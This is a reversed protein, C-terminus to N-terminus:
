YLVTKYFNLLYLCYREVQSLYKENTPYHAKAYERLKVIYNYANLNVDFLWINNYSKTIKPLISDAMKDINNIIKSIREDSFLYTKKIYKSFNEKQTKVLAKKIEIPECFPTRHIILECSALDIKFFSILDQILWVSHIATFNCAIFLGNKLQESNTVKNTTFIKQKTWSTQFSFLEENTKPSFNLFENVIKPLLKKWSTCEIKINQFSFSAPTTFELVYDRKSLDEIYFRKSGDFFLGYKKLFIDENM